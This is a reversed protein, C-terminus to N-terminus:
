LMKLIWKKAYLKNNCGEFKCNIVRKIGEVFTNMEDQSIGGTGEKRWKSQVFFSRRLLIMIYQM